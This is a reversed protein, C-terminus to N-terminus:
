KLKSECHEMQNIRRDNFENIVKRKKSQQTNYNEKEYAKLEEVLDANGNEYVNNWYDAELIEPNVEREINELYIRRLLSVLLSDRRKQNKPAM